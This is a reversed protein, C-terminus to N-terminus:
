NVVLQLNTPPNPRVITTGTNYEYAGIDYASGQPRTTGDLDTTVQAITAGADVAPSTAQLHWDGQAMNYAAYTTGTPQPGNVAFKPDAAINGSLSSLISLGARANFFINNSGTISSSTTGDLCIYGCYNPGNNAFFINNTVDLSNVGAYDIDGSPSVNPNNGNWYFTNNWIKFNGSASANSTSRLQIGSYGFAPECYGARAILNDFIYETNSNEFIETGGDSGGIAMGEACTNHIWNHHIVVNRIIDGPAHGYLQIGKGKGTNDHLNNWGIDIGDQTGYAGFYISYGHDSDLLGPSCSSVDNGYIQVTNSSGEFNWCVNTSNNATNGVLRLRNYGTQGDLIRSTSNAGNWYIGAFVWDHTATGTWNYSVYTKGAASWQPNEGPYAVMAIPAASTGGTGAFMIISSSSGEADISSDWTGTRLYVIDGAVMTGRAHHLSKWPTGVSGNASDNGSTSLFYIAGSRVTFPTGNSANSNVTVVVNGTTVNSGLQCTIKQYWLWAAGWIPCHDVAGGGVIVTSTGQSVGFNDGYITVYAGKNNEGGTGPGSTLDTFFIHPPTTQAFTGM